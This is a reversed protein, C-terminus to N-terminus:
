LKRVYFHLRPNNNLLVFVRTCCVLDIFHHKSGNSPLEDGLLVMYISRTQTKGTWFLLYLIYITFNIDRTCFETDPTDKSRSANKERNTCVVLWWKNQRTQEHHCSRDPRSPNFLICVFWWWYNTRTRFRDIAVTHSFHGIRRSCDTNVM